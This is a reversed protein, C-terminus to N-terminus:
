KIIVMHLDKHNELIIIKFNGLSTVFFPTTNPLFPNNSIYIIVCSFSLEHWYNHDTATDTIKQVTLSFKM